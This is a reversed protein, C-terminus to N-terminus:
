LFFRVGLIISSKLGKLALGVFRDFVSLCNAPLNGAVNSFSVSRWPHKEHKKFQMFPVLARLVDRKFLQQSLILGSLFSIFALSSSSLVVYHGFCLM